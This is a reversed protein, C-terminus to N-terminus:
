VGRKALHPHAAVVWRCRSVCKSGTQQALSNAPTAPASYATLQTKLDSNNHLCQLTSNMYCTNGLNVLGNGLAAMDAYDQVAEPM